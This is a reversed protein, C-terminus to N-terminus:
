FLLNYMLNIDKYYAHLYGDESAILLKHQELVALDQVDFPVEFGVRALGSQARLEVQPYAWIEHNNNVVIVDNHYADYHVQEIRDHHNIKGLLFVGGDNKGLTLIENSTNILILQNGAPLMNQIGKTKFVLTSSKSVFDIFHLGDKSKAYVGDAFVVLGTARFSVPLTTKLKLNQDYQVFENDYSVVFSADFSDFFTIHKGGFVKQMKNQGNYHYVVGPGTLFYLGNKSKVVKRLKKVSGIKEGKGNKTQLSSTMLRYVVDDSDVIIIEEGLQEVFKLPRDSIKVRLDDKFRDDNQVGQQLLKHLLFDNKVHGYLALSYKSYEDITFQIKEKLVEDWVLVGGLQGLLDQFDEKSKIFGFELAAFEEQVIKEKLTSSALNFLSDVVVKQKEVLAKELELDQMALERGSLANTARIQEAKYDMMTKRVIAVQAELFDSEAESEQLLSDIQQKQAISLKMREQIIDNKVEGQELLDRVEIHFFIGRGIAVMAIALFFGVVRFRLRQMQKKELERAKLERLEQDRQALSLHIYSAIKDSSFSYKISLARLNEKKHWKEILELEAGSLLSGNGSGHSYARQKVLKIYELNRLEQDLWIKAQEWASLDNIYNLKVTCETPGNLQLLQNSTSIEIGDTTFLQFVFTSNTIFRGVLQLLAQPSCAIANAIENFSLHLTDWGYDLKVVLYQVLHGFLMKEQEDLTQFWYQLVSAGRAEVLNLQASTTGEGLSALWLQAELISEFNVKADLVIDKGMSFLRLSEMIDEGNPSDLYYSSSLVLEQLMPIKSLISIRDSSVLFCSYFPLDEHGHANQIAEFFIKDAETITGGLALLRIYDDLGDWVLLMNAKKKEKFDRLLRVLGYAGFENFIDTIAVIHKTSPKGSLDENLTYSLTKILSNLLNGRSDLIVTKWTDGAAGMFGQDLKPLLTANLFSTKGSSPLGLLTLRRNQQLISLVDSAAADRQLCWVNDHRGIARGGAFIRNSNKSGM